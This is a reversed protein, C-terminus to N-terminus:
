FEIVCVKFAGGTAGKYCQVDRQMKKSKLQSPSNTRLTPCSWYGAKRERPKREPRQIQKSFTSAADFNLPSVHKQPYDKVIQLLPSSYARTKQSSIDTESTGM